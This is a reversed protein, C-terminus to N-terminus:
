PTEDPFFHAVMLAKTRLEISFVSHSDVAANRLEGNSIPQMDCIVVVAAWNELVTTTDGVRFRHSTRRLCPAIIHFDKGGMRAVKLCLVIQTLQLALSLAQTLKVIEILQLRINNLYKYLFEFDYPKLLSRSSCM